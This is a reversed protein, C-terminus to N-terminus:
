RLGGVNTFGATHSRSRWLCAGLRPPAHTPYVNVGMMDEDCAKSTLSAPLMAGRIGSRWLCAGQRKYQPPAHTPYDNVGMMDEDCADLLSSLGRLDADKSMETNDKHKGARLGPLDAEFICDAGDERLGKQKFYWSQREGVIM